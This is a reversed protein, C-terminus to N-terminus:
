GDGGSDAPRRRGPRPLLRKVDDITIAPLSAEDGFSPRGYPHGEFVYAAAYSGLLRNPSGDKAAKIFQVTRDRLKEFEAEDLRPRILLDALM